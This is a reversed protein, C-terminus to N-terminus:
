RSRVRAPSPHDGDKAAGLSLLVYLPWPLEQFFVLQVGRKEAVWNVEFAGKGGQGSELGGPLAAGLWSVVVM